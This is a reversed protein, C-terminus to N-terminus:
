QPFSTGNNSHHYVYILLVLVLIIGIMIKGFIIGKPGYNHNNGSM